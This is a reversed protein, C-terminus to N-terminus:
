LIHKPKADYCFSCACEQVRVHANCKHRIPRIDTRHNFLYNVYNICLSRAICPENNGGALINQRSVILASHKLKTTGLRFLNIINALCIEVHRLYDLSFTSNVLKITHIHSRTCKATQYAYLPHQM